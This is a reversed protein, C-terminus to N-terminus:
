WRWRVIGAAVALLEDRTYLSEALALTAVALLALEQARRLRTLGQHNTVPGETPHSLSALQSLDFYEVSQKPMARFDFRHSLLHPRSSLATWPQPM